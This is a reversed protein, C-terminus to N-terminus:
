PTGCDRRDLMWLGTWVKLDILCGAAMRAKLWADAQALPVLHVEIDEGDIGGGAGVQTLERALVLHVIEDALGASSPGVAVETLSGASWGTEEILERGAARLIDPDGDDGVLGAPLEIVRAKVPIRYQEVLILEGAPTAAAIAVGAGANSRQAYEWHGQRRLRLFQGEALIRDDDL